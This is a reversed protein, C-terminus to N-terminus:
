QNKDEPIRKPFALGVRQFVDNGENQRMGYSTDLLSVGIIHNKTTESKKLQNSPPSPPAWNAKYYFGLQIFALFICRGM